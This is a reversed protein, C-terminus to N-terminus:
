SPRVVGYMHIDYYDINGSSFFFRIGNISQQASNDLGGAFNVGNQNNSGDLYSIHGIVQPPPSVSTSTYKRNVLTLQGTVGEYNTNGVTANTMKFHNQANAGLQTGTHMIAEGGYDSSGNIPNNSTDLFNGRFQVNDSTPHVAAFYFIFTDYDNSLDQFTVYATDTASAARTIPVLGSNTGSVTGTFAFTDALNMSEAQIKSLAM